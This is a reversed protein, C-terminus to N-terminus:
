ANPSHRIDIGLSSYCSPDILAEVFWIRLRICFEGLFLDPLYASRPCVLWTSYHLGWNTPFMLAECGHLGGAAQCNQVIISSPTWDHGRLALLQM